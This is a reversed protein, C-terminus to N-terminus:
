KSEAAKAYFELARARAFSHEVIPDPYAQTGFEPVWRKIYKFDPDFKKQQESPNFVRFYPAADCGTGAAWQWNGNNSALDYDFLHESFFKEGLRWDTLLHKTLFSATIMRARNHMFGTEVLERMGADVAPYGTQGTKWKEFDQSEQKWSLKRFKEKFEQSVVFPFHFLVQSFFDRWAIESLFTQNLNQGQLAVKRVSVQGFRLHPGVHTTGSAQFMFNRTKDYGEIVSKKLNAPPMIKKQPNFGLKSLEPMKSNTSVWSALKLDVIRDVLDKQSLQRQWRKFYPTFVTYPTGDDKCIENKEFIVHDKFQHCQTNKSNLFEVVTQDRVLTKPEYDRNWYVNEIQYEDSLKKWVETTSGHEVLIQTNHEVLSKNLDHIREWIFHIRPNSPSLHKLIDKDLIYLLLLPSRSNKIAESLATNDTLRLDRRLWVISVNTRSKIPRM